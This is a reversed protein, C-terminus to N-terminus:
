LIGYRSNAASDALSIGKHVARNRVKHVELLWLTLHEIICTMGGEDYTATPTGAVYVMDGPTLDFEFTVRLGGRPLVEVHPRMENRIAEPKPSM